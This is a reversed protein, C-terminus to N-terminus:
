LKYQTTIGSTLEKTPWKANDVAFGTLHKGDQIYEEMLNVYFKLFGRTSGTFSSTKSFGLFACASVNLVKLYYIILIYSM